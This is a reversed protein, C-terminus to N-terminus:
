DKKTVRFPKNLVIYEWIIDDLNIVGNNIIREDENQPFSAEIEQCDITLPVDITEWTLADHMILTTEITCDLDYADEGLALISGYVHTSSIGEVGILKKANESFDLEEDFELANQTYKNLQICPWKM